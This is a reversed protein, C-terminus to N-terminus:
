PKPEPPPSSKFCDTHAYTGDHFMMLSAWHGGASDRLIPQHCVKCTWADVTATAKPTLEHLRPVDKSEAKWRVRQELAVRLTESSCGQHIITHPAVQVDCPLKDPWGGADRAQQPSLAADLVAPLNALVWNGLNVSAYGMSFQEARAAAYRERGEAVIRRLAEPDTM